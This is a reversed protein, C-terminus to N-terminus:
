ESDFSNVLQEQMVEEIEEVEIPIDEMLDIPGDDTIFVNNEIRVGIGEEAIYLAPECTLVMGAQLPSFRDSLDHVDLGLHHAVGHMFYKKYPARDSAHDAAESKSLLGLDVLEHSLMSGVERSLEDLHIGPLMMSKARRFTRLVANYVSRQRETFKGNCPITRSLDACYHAYKAGFDLLILEGEACTSDNRTYHLVCAASGSAVIPEYAHGQAGGEMFTGIIKGEIEYEKIGPRVCRLVRHFAQSTITCSRRLLEVEIPSKIMRLQRLIPQARHYKHFPYKGMLEKAIRADKTEVQATVHLNENDNVYLRKAQHLLDQLVAPMQDLWYVKEVGSIEKVEDMSLMPGEWLSTKAKGRKVFLVERLDVNRGHPYMVLVTEPQDIGSLYFLDSHQEFPFFQDGNRPMVDNSQFIAISDAKMQRVFRQRNQRFLSADISQYRM